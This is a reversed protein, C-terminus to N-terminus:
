SVTYAEWPLCELEGSAFRDLSSVLLNAVQLNTLLPIGYDVAHRRILYGNDLESDGLNKPINVVLDVQRERILDLANPSGEDLPWAVTQCPLEHRRLFEATGGTGYLRIGRRHLIRASPLFGAKSEVPGTSLIVAREVLRSGASLWAKLFADGLETGLCAVEGTSAMEVGLMPDAGGLRAFSFQPVKVGVYDLDFLSKSPPEIPLGMIARTALEAFDINYVKSCFPFSRSARLNCEIVRVRNEQALFQINFPGSIRLAEAIQRAIRKIRRITELYLKQPPLVVTADGSHVGATEVHESIAYAVLRGDAAVADIEIEKAGSVYESMVVPYRGSVEAAHALIGQLDAERFAVAMAAGSLVYSPRVLLPYGMQRAQECADEVSSVERWEPQDVGLSDILSSFKHRNEARDIDRPATGLVPVKEHALRPALVNPVQGGMSVIFGRPHEKDRIDLIRELTLEEFYLRDCVDFDTSVTEPNHNIMVTPCGLQRLTRLAGVCCWDFEVSSGIRYPGSGLVVVPREEDPLAPCCFQVDDEVGGYSLYLYNTEAPFEGATTDIQKVSPVIGMKQRLRRITMMKDHPDAPLYAM